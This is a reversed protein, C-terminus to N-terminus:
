GIRTARPEFGTVLPSEDIPSLTVAGPPAADMITIEPESGNEYRYTRELEGNVYFEVTASQIYEIPGSLTTRPDIQQSPYPTLRM